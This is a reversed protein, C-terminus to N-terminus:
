KRSTDGDQAFRLGTIEHATWEFGIVDNIWISALSDFYRHKQTSVVTLAGCYCLGGALLEICRGNPQHSTTKDLDIKASAKEM